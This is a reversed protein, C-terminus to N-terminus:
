YKRHEYIIGCCKIGIRPGIAACTRRVLASPPRKPAPIKKSVENKTKRCFLGHFMISNLVATTLPPMSSHGSTERAEAPSASGRIIKVAEDLNTVAVVM